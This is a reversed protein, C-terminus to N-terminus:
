CSAISRLARFYEFRRRKLRSADAARVQLGTLMNEWIRPPALFRAPGWSACTASCPRPARPVIAPPLRGGPQNALRSSRHRRGLGDASLLALQRRSASAGGSAFSESTAIMNRHSLLVGKSRGTTGSTYAIAAIDSACGQEVEREFHGPHEKAFAVGATELDSFSKLLDHEYSSMGRPDDYVVLRLSPLDGAISLIKDVQEQDEAVVVSVEAHGLVFALESAIFDQYLPVSM